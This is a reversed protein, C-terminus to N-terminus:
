VDARGNLANRWWVAYPEDVYFMLESATGHSLFPRFVLLCVMNAVAPNSMLSELGGNQMMQQAMQMMAPNSLISSLDPMGGAGGAGPSGGM